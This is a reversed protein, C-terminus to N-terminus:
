MQEPDWPVLPEDFSNQGNWFTIPNSTMLLTAHMRGEDNKISSWDGIRPAGGSDALRIQYRRRNSHLCHYYWRERRTKGTM